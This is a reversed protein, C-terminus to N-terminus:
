ARRKALEREVDEATIPNKVEVHGLIPKRPTSEAAARMSCEVALEDLMRQSEPDLPALAEKPAAIQSREPPKESPIGDIYVQSYVEIGDLAPYKACYAARMEHLGPWKGYLNSMRRILWTGQDVSGCMRALEDTVLAQAAPAKPFYDLITMAECVFAAEENTM